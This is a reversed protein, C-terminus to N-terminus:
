DNYCKDYENQWYERKQKAFEERDIRSKENSQPHNKKYNGKGRHDSRHM